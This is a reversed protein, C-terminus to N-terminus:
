EMAHGRHACLTVTSRTKPILTENLSTTGVIVPNHVIKPPTGAPHYHLFFDCEYATAQIKKKTPGQNKRDGTAAKEIPFR